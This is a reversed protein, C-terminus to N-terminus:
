DDSSLQAVSLYTFNIDSFIIAMKERLKMIRIMRDPIADKEEIL